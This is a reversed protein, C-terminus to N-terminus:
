ECTDCIKAATNYNYSILLKEQLPYAALEDSMSTFYNWVSKDTFDSVAIDYIYSKILYGLNYDAYIDGVDDVFWKNPGEGVVINKGSADYTFDANFDMNNCLITGVPLEKVLIAKKSEKYGYYDYTSYANYYKMYTDEHNLNSFKVGKLDADDSEHWDGIYTFEGHKDLFIFRSGNITNAILHQVNESKYFERNDMYLPHLIDKVYQTTDSWDTVPTVSKIIGNHAMVVDTYLDLADFHKKKHSIPFPHTLEPSNPGHTGIRFHFMISIDKLTKDYKTKLKNELMDLGKIFDEYSMFGKEIYVRKNLSYAFGAGDPNYDYMDKMVPKAPVDFGKASAAIVCM